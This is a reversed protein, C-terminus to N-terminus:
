LYLRYAYESKPNSNYTYLNYDTVIPADPYKERILSLDELTRVLFGKILGNDYLYFVESLKDGKRRIHELAAYVPIDFGSFKSYSVAENGTLLAEDM